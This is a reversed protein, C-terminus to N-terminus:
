NQGSFSKLLQMAFLMSKKTEPQQMEKLLRWMSVKQEMYKDKEDITNLVNNAANLVQPQTVKNIIDVFIDVNEGLRTLDEIKFSTVLKDFIKILEGFFVFYGKKEFEDLTELAGDFIEKSLPTLDNIFDAASEMSDLMGNFNRINRLIRKLLYVFDQTDFHEAVDELEEVAVEFVDKSIITLDKKLSELTEQKRRSDEVFDTIINLQQKMDDLQQQIDKNEM